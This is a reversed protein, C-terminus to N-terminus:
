GLVQINNAFDHAEQGFPDSKDSPNRASRPATIGSLVFTLKANERPVLVTFRSASKVFDVVAPVKKQRSLLALQRKAKELSESYDVYQKASPTKESWLGRKAEQAASKLEDM